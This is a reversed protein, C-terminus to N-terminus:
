AIQKTKSIISELKNMSKALDVKIRDKLAAEYKLMREASKLRSDSELHSLQLQELYRYQKDLTEFLDDLKTSFDKYTLRNARFDDILSRLKSVVGMFEKLIAEQTSQANPGNTQCSRADASSQKELKEKLSKIENNKKEFENLVKFKLESEPTMPENSELLYIKLKLDFNEKRLQDMKEYYEKLLFDHDMQSEEISLSPLTSETLKSLDVYTSPFNELACSRDELDGTEEM